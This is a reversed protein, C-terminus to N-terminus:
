QSKRLELTVGAHDRTDFYCFGSGDDRRGRAIVALGLARARSEAVGLDPSEFGLHYVGEGFENLFRRQPSDM